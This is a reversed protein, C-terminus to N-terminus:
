SSPVGVTLTGRFGDGARSMKLFSGNGGGSWGIVMDNRNSYRNPPRRSYPPRLAVESNLSDPFYMQFTFARSPGTWIKGHIHPTRQGYWGPYITRFTVFGNGDATQRGRLAQGNDTRSAEAGPDARGGRDSEPFGSYIGLADCHWIDVVPRGGPRCSAADVIRLGLDLLAGERGDRIDSREPMGDAYYPGEVAAHTPICMASDEFSHSVPDLTSNGAALRRRRSRAPEGALGRTAWASAVAVGGLMMTRRAFTRRRM